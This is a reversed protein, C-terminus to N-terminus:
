LQILEGAEADNSRTSPTRAWQAGLPQELLEIADDVAGAVAHMYRMTTAINAHGALSQITTVPVGKMALRTCFTHRLSHWTCDTLKANRVLRNITENMYAASLAGGDEMRSLIYPGRLKNARIAHLADKLPKALPISRPKRSKTSTETERWRSTSVVLRNTVENIDTWKVARLEGQRLGAYAALMVGAFWMPEKEAVALLAALEVDELYRYSETDVKPRVIRPMKTLWEQDISWRLIKRLTQLINNVYKASLKTLNGDEDRRIGETRLLGATFTAVRESTVEDLYLDGFEPRIYRDVGSRKTAKESEKNNAIEVYDALFKELVVSVRHRVAEVKPEPPPNLVREIHAREAEEAARKTNIAPTGIVRVTRGNPLKVRKRYRWVDGQDIRKYVAM